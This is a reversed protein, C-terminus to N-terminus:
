RWPLTPFSSCTHRAMGNEGVIVNLHKAFELRAEPFATFNKLKLWKLVAAAEEFRPYTANYTVAENDVSAPSTFGFVSLNTHQCHPPERRATLLGM